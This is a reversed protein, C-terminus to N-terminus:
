ALDRSTSHGQTASDDVFNAAGHPLKSPPRGFDLACGTALMSALVLASNAIGLPGQLPSLLISAITFSLLLPPTALSSRKTGCYAWGGLFGWIAIYIPAGWAGFDIFAAGWVTPFFGYIDGQSHEEKMRELLQNSPFFLRLIPSLIGIEYVGWLPSLQGRLQWIEDLTRVGHTLYFYNSLMARAISSSLYGHELTSFVYQRPVVHWSIRMIDLFQGFNDARASARESAVGEIMASVAAADIGSRLPNPQV